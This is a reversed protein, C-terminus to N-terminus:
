ILLRRFEAALAAAHDRLRALDPGSALLSRSASPMVRDPCAEFVRAVDEASAGQKGVGPALFLGQAKPLDLTPEMHTPSVVAGIPGVGGPALTANLGGIEDLLVAEVSRGSAASAEQVLRGEPNSSRAVVLLCGGSQQAREVFAHMAGLGLYPHVTLADVEVPAGAGLYAEAYAQNTSGVDGRKADLIVLLGASRAELVLRSLARAGRWGHREYFASQPKVLGVTGAAAGVVIDVFRELGDPDDGLGWNDLLAGSPDLGWVLPGLVSRVTEFRSVFSATVAGLRWRSGVPGLTKNHAVQDQCRASNSNHRALPASRLRRALQHQEVEVVGQGVPGAREGAPRCAEGGMMPDVIVANAPEDFLVLVAEAGALIEECSGPKVEADAFAGCVEDAPVALVIRQAVHCLGVADGGNGSKAPGPQLDANHGVALWALLYLQPYRPQGTLYVSDTNGGQDPGAFWLQGNKGFCSTTAGYGQRAPHDAISRYGIDLSTLAGAQDRDPQVSPTAPVTGLDPGVKHDLGDSLGSLCDQGM